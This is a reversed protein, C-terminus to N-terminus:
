PRDGTPRDGTRFALAEPDAHDRRRKWAPRDVHHRTVFAALWEFVPQPMALAEVLDDGADAHSHAEAPDVTALLLSWGAPGGGRRLVVYVAPQPAEVNDKYVKTDTSYAVLEAAGAYYRTTGGAEALVSWPPAEPRGPLVAVARWIHDLWPSRAPQREVIVGVPMREIIM